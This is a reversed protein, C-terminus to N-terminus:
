MKAGAEQYVDGLLDVAREVKKALEPSQEIAPHTLLMNHIIDMICNTRDAAEHWHGKNLKEKAM